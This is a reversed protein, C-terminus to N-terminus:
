RKVARVVIYSCCYNFPFVHCIKNVARAITKGVVKEFLALQPLKVGYVRTVEFGRFISDIQGPWLYYSKLLRFKQGTLLRVIETKLGWLCGNFQIAAVGGPKLVKRIQDVIAGKEEQTMMYMFRTGIVADFSEPPFDLDFINGKKVTVNKLNMEGVKGSSIELMGEANDVAVLEVGTAAMRVTNRGTGNCLELMRIGPRAGTFDRLLEAELEAYVKPEGREWMEDYKAASKSWHAARQEVRAHHQSDPTEVQAAAPTTTM